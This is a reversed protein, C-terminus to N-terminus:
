GAPVPRKVATEQSFVCVWKGQQEKWISSVYVQAAFAKRHSNGRETLKYSILGANASIRAFKVEDMQYETLTFGAVNKLVQTKSAAGQADVFIAGDATLNGFQEVDGAKLVDL